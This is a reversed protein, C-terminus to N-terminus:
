KVDHKSRKKDKATTSSLRRIPCPTKFCQSRSLECFTGNCFTMAAKTLEHPKAFVNWQVLRYIFLPCSNDECYRRHLENGSCCVILCYKPIADMKM